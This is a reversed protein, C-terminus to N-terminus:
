AARLENSDAFWRQGADDHIGYRRIGPRYKSVGMWFVSGQKGRADGDVALVRDGFGFSAPEIPLEAKELVTEDVWYATGDADRLGFRAREADMRSKGQWFLVGVVGEHPGEKVKAIEGVKLKVSM